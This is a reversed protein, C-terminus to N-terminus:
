YQLVPLKRVRQKKANKRFHLKRATNNERNESTAFFFCPRPFFIFLLNFVAATFFRCRFFREVRHLSCVRQQTSTCRLEALRGRYVQAMLLVNCRCREQDFHTSTNSQFLGVVFRDKHKHMKTRVNCTPWPCSIDMLYQAQLLQVCIILICGIPHTMTCTYVVSCCNFRYM